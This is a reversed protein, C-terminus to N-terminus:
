RMVLLHCAIMDLWQSKKMECACVFSSVILLLMKTLTFLAFVRKFNKSMVGFWLSYAAM